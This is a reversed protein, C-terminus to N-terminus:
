IEARFRRGSQPVAASLAFPGPSRIGVANSVGHAQVSATEAACADLLNAFVAYAAAAASSAITEMVARTVTGSNTNSVLAAPASVPRVPKYAAPPSSTQVRASVPTARLSQPM